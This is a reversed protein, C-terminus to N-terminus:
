PGEPLPMWLTPEIKIRERSESTNFTLDYVDLSWFPPKAHCEYQAIRVGGYDPDYVLVTTLDKPATEIPQWQPTQEQALDTLLAEVDTRLLWGGETEDATPVSYGRHFRYRQLRAMWTQVQASHQPLDNSM